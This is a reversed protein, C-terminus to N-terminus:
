TVDVDDYNVHIQMELLIGNLCAPNSKSTSSLVKLMLKTYHDRKFNMEKEFHIKLIEARM